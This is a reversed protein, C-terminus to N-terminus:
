TRFGRCRLFMRSIERSCSEIISVSTEEQVAPGQRWEKGPKTSDVGRAGGMAPTRWGFRGPKRRNRPERRGARPFAHQVSSHLVVSTLSWPALSSPFSASSLAVPRSADPSRTRGCRSAPWAQSPGAGFCIRIVSSSCYRRSSSALWSWSFPYLQTESAEFASAYRHDSSCLGSRMMVSM